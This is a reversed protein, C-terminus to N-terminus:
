KALAGLPGRSRDTRTRQGPEALAITTGEDIGTVVAQSETRRVLTVPHTIYGEPSERYVFWRGEREFVAQSPIWLVDDLTEVRIVVDVSMGPRLSDDKDDLAIRCNFTRNWASGASGGVLSIHGKFERGPMAKPRVIARQGVALFARDTEPIQTSVEWQSMEPIRAVTQGPRASDGLQFTPITMGTFLVSLGNTNEALQVYGSSPARLTMGAITKRAAEAKAQAEVVASKQATLGTGKKVDAHALDQKAQEHRNRAQELAIENKRQQVSGLFRNELQDLESIDLDSRTSVVELRAKEQAVFVDAEAKALQQQAEELDAEAEVLLYQQGSPDFEAVVDGAEVREGTSRLFTIPLEAAGGRPVILDAAGGGQLEGRSSVEIVVDTRRVKTTPVATDGGEALAEIGARLGRAVGFGAAVISGAV